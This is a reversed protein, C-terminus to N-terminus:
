QSNGIVRQNRVLYDGNFLIVVPEGGILPKDPTRRQASIHLHPETTNGSNGVLGLFDGIAAVDGAKKSVSGRQLHALLIEIGDCELLVHNGALKTRDPDRIPVPMEPRDNETHTIIGACPAVVKDGFIKYRQPDAPQIGNTRLGWNNIKIIDIGFSQGRWPKFRPIPALTKIHPNLVTNSGAHAVYYTGQQLPFRLNIQEGAQIMRGSILYAAIGVTALSVIVLGFIAMQARPYSSDFWPKSKMHLGSRIALITAVTLYIYPIYWPAIIWLGAVAISILYSVVIILKLLWILRSQQQTKVLWMLLAAPFIIQLVLVQFLQWNM